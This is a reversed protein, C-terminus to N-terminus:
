AAVEVLVQGGMIGCLEEVKVVSSLPAREITAAINKANHANSAWLKIAVTGADHKMTVIYQKM